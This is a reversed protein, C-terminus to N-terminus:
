SVAERCLLAVGDEVHDDPSLKEACSHWVVLVVEDFDVGRM